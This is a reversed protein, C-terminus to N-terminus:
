SPAPGSWPRPRRTCGVWPRPGGELHSLPVLKGALPALVGEAPVGEGVVGIGGWGGATTNDGGAWAM